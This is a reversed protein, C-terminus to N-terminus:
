ASERVVPALRRDISTGIREVEAAEDATVPWPSFPLPATELAFTSDGRKLIGRAEDTLTDPIKHRDLLRRARTYETERRADIAVNLLLFLGALRQEYDSAQYAVYLAFRRARDMDGIQRYAEGVNLLISCESREDPRTTTLAAYSYRIVDPYQGVEGAVWGRDLLARGLVVDDSEARARAIVADLADGAERFRKRDILVKAQGLAAHLQYSVSGCDIAFALLDRYCSEATDFERLMRRSFGVMLAAELGTATDGIRRALEYLPIAEAWQGASQLARAHQMLTPADRTELVTSPRDTM